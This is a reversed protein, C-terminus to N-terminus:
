TGGPVPSCGPWTRVPAPKGVARETSIRWGFKALRLESLTRALARAFGPLEAVPKFYNLENASRAHYVARAALAELGLSTLPALGLAAMAPRALDAALQILTPRHVGAIGHAAHVLDEGALHSPAILISEPHSALFAAATKILRENSRSKVLRRTGGPM